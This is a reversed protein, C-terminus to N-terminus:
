AHRQDRQAYPMFRTISSFTLNPESLQWQQQVKIV